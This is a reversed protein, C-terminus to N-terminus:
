PEPFTGMVAMNRAPRIRSIMLVMTIKRPNLIKHGRSPNIQVRFSGDDSLFARCLRKIAPGRVPIAMMAQAMKERDRERWHYQWWIKEMEILKVRNIEQQLM